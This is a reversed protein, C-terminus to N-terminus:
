PVLEVEIAGFATDLQLELHHEAGAWNPTRFSDDVKQFGPANFSTLFTSKKIWVGLDAPLRLKLSGIGMRITGTANGDWAGTFDLVVDGVGSKLEFHEFRANGLQKTRIEAAGVRIVLEAMRVPNPASFSLKTQSAATSIELRSLVVGGLEIESKAAGIALKLDTPLRRGLRLRLTGSSEDLERLDRLDLSIDPDFDVDDVNGSSLAEIWDGGDGVTTLGVKLRARGETLAWRRVPKFKQSDYTMRVDYLLDGAEPEIELIGAGYVIELAFSETVSHSQRASRFESWEQAQLTAAHVALLPALLLGALLWSAGASRAFLLTRARNM